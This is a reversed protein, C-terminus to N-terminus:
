RPLAFAILYDGPTTGLTGHGGAAIVVFQRGGPELRYSMPTAQGGAPLRQRWLEHGTEVDYARVYDDLSAGIFVLGSATLLPGGMSPLGLELGFGVPVLDRTTGFPVEWRKRGTELDLALLTGWPLPTCPIGLPSEFIEHRVFYPTGRQLSLGPPREREYEPHDARPVLTQVQALRNTNMVLLRRVPDYAVSGWNVGGATGPFQVSGELSPPTFMGEYRLSTLEHRCLLGDIPTIGLASPDLREPHVSEPFTPFPQTPSAREGPVDSPPVPREEVPYIPEGTERHLLFIQGTKTAQVVAPLREGDKVLEILVPQAALDYDWLDHHVTQFRWVLAGTAGDLAVVASGYHDFGRRHAGVFDPSPGGFPVFVLNRRPDVSLISWANPTGRHFRPRGDPGPALPPTGPPVPDFYWRLAGTRADFARIVGGPGDVRRNDAVLGGTVVVDRAVVPPSTMWAEGEELEGLGEDLNVVGDRGFDGCAEGSQADVAHLRNDITGLFIRTACPRGAPAEPDAWWAVGRCTRTWQSRPRPRADYRWREGGTRADLAFVRGLPSCLYLTDGHLIPTAQFATKGADDRAGSWDGTRFTWAVELQEVNKPHIERLPTYRAGGPPGGTTPWGASSESADPPAPPPDPLARAGLAFAAIALGGALVFPLPARRLRQM